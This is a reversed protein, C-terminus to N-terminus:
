KKLDQKTKQKHCSKCLLQFNWLGMGGGGKHVPLIHDVQLTATDTGDFSNGDLGCHRCFNGDRIELLVRIQKTAGYLLRWFTEVTM